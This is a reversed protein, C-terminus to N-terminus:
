FQFALSLHFVNNFYETEDVVEGLGYHYRGSVTFGGKTVLGVGANMGWTFSNPNFARSSNIFSEMKEKHSIAFGIQPGLEIFFFEIPYAKFMTAINIYDLDQTLKYSSNEVQYGQQSYFLETQFSFDDSFFYDNYFGVHFGSKHNSESQDNNRVSSVNYGAKIGSNSTGKTQSFGFSFSCVAVLTFLFKNNM